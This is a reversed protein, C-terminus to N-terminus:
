KGLISEIMSSTVLYPDCNAAPRRDEFYGKGDKIVQNPIRISTGRSGYGVTFEKIDSTEHNGTLRLYNDKGSIDIFDLHKERLKEIASHIFSIDNRMEETSFNCHCGSGNEGRIPKPDFVIQYNYKEALRVLLYRALMLQDAADIGEVPGIQFEWQGAVVESNIGSITLGAELCAKMHHEVFPRGLQTNVGCYYKGSVGPEYGLPKGNQYIFYEQELGFWCKNSKFKNFIKGL